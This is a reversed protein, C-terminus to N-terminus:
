RRRLLQKIARIPATLRWSLSGTIDAITGEARRLHNEVDHSAHESKLLLNRHKGIEEVAWQEVEARAIASQVIESQAKALDTEVALLAQGRVKREADRETRERLLTDRTADGESSTTKLQQEWWGVEFPEGMVLLSEPNPLAADSALAVTFMESGPELADQKVVNLLLKGTSATSSSQADSLIAAVLWPSQRCLLVHGFERTLTEELEQPIFEHTHHPNGPPYVDRNPSSIALIGGPRLVRRLESIAQGQKDIHEIAEFCVITDFEDDAFPLARLDGHRADVHDDANLELARAVAAESIDVGLVRAAGGEKLIQMGYGTGCGADLVRRGAAFQAAWMYRGLHESVILGRDRDQLDLREPHEEAQIPM